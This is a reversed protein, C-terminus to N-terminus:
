GAAAASRRALLSMALATLAVTAVVSVLLTVVILKWQQAILPLYAIVGVGAPVFLLALNDHLFSATRTMEPSAEGRLSLIGYLLVLGIVAGPVPLGTLTVIAEGVLQLAILVFITTM